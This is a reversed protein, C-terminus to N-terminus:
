DRSDLDEVGRALIAAQTRTKVGLKEYIHRLHVKVTKESLFLEGAIDRNSMGRCLLEYVDRERKSLLSQGPALPKIQLHNAVEPAEAQSFTRELLARDAPRLVIAAAAPVTRLAFLFPDLQGTATVLKTLSGETAPQSRRQLCSVDVFKALVASEALWRTAAAAESATSLASERRQCAFLALARTALYEARLGPSARPEPPPSLVDVATEPDNTLLLHRARLVVANLGFHIDGVARARSALEDVVAAARGLKRVGLLAIGEAHLTHPVAFDLRHSRSFATQVRTLDLAVTYRATANCAHALANTFAARTFPDTVRSSLQRYPEAREVAALLGGTRLAVVLLASERRVDTDINQAALNRVRTVLDHLDASELELAAFLEGLLAERHDRETQAVERARGFLCRALEMKDAQAAAQGSRVFAQGRRPSSDDLGRAAELALRQSKDHLGERFALEAAALDLLPRRAGHDDLVQLWRSLTALRGDALLREFSHELVALSMETSEAEVAVAFADDLRNQALYLDVLVRSARHLAKPSEELRKRLFTRLLPHLESSALSSPAFFGAIEAAVLLNEDGEGILALADERSGMPSLSLYLLATKMRHDLGQFLEDALFELLTPPVADPLWLRSAPLGAALGIVAPWGRAHRIVPSAEGSGLALATRAEDETMALLTRDLELVEGYVIQRPFIWAPRARTTLVVRAALGEIVARLFGEAASSESLTHYDDVVLWLDDPWAPSAEVFLEALVHTDADPSPVAALRRALKEGLEAPAIETIEALSRALAAVDLSSSSCRYWAPRHGPRRTWERALTTKGYGAPANLVIVRAGSEEMLKILRPREIIHSPAAVPDRSPTQEETEM